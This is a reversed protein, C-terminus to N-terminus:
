NGHDAEATKESKFASAFRKLHHLLALAEQTAAMYSDIDHELMLELVTRQENAAVQLVAVPHALGLTAVQGRGTLWDDLYQALAEYPAAKAQPRSLCFALTQNLGNQLIQAPLSHCRTGFEKFQAQNLPKPNTSSDTSHKVALLAFRMRMQELTQEPAM